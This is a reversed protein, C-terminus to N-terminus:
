KGPVRGLGSAQAQSWAQRSFLVMTMGFGGNSDKANYSMTMSGSEVDGFDAVSPGNFTRGDAQFERGLWYATYGDQEAKAAATVFNKYGQDSNRGALAGCAMMLAAVGCIAGIVVMRHFNTKPMPGNVCTAERSIILGDCRVWSDNVGVGRLGPLDHQTPM